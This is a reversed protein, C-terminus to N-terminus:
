SKNKKLGLQVLKNFIRVKPLLSNSKNINDYLTRILITWPGVARIHVTLNDEDPSSSLTFPHYESKNLSLCAIRIWQGSKYQFNEPRRFELM